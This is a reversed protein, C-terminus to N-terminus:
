PIKDGAMAMYARPTKSYSYIFHIEISLVKLGNLDEIIPFNAFSTESM